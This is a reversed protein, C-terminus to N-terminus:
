KIPTETDHTLLVVTGSSNEPMIAKISVGVKSLYDVAEKIPSAQCDIVKTVRQHTDRISVQNRGNCRLLHRIRFGRIQQLKM